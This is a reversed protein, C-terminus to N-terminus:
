RAWAMVGRGFTIGEEQLTELTYYEAWTSGDLDRWEVLFSEGPGFIRKGQSSLAVYGRQGDWNILRQGVRISTHTM